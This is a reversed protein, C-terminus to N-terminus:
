VLPDPDAHIWMKQSGQIRIREPITSGGWHFSFIGYNIIEITSSNPGKPFWANKKLGTLHESKSVLQFNFLQLSYM